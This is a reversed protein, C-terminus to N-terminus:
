GGDATFHKPTPRLEFPESVQRAYLDPDGCAPCQPRRAVAHRRSELTVTDVITISADDGDDVGRVVRALRGAALGILPAETWPAADGPGSSERGLRREVFSRVRDNRDLRHRLCEWCPGRGPQFLPGIWARTGGRRVLLWPRQEALARRNWEALSPAR